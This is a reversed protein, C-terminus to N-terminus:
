AACLNNKTNTKLVQDYVALYANVMADMSFRAEIEARAVQGELKMRAPDSVYALLVQAMKEPEGPAVLFGTKGPTVLEPNGGVSTAIVPLGCAMAELITNSIGEGLSPLVFVDMAQMLEAVDDRDGALWVQDELKLDKLLRECEIRASGDGVIALRLRSRSKRSEPLLECVRHFARILTPFDKVQALRGVSGIVISDESVFGQPGVSERLGSRPRFKVNDVGNYVQTIKRSSVGVTNKLWGALDRSVAIYRGIFPQVIKRLMNYKRNKGHLDYIDRGHEGHVRGRIRAVTGVIQSELASLNRTHLIDPKLARLIKYLRFYAKFDHGTKQGVDIIEVDDRQIRNRFDTFGQLCIIVHRYREPPMHNILNVLGNEMGGTGLRHIVHAVLYSM